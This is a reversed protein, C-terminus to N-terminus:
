DVEVKIIGKIMTEIRDKSTPVEAEIYKPNSHDKTMRDKAALRGMIATLKDIRDGLEDRANFSAKRETGERISM